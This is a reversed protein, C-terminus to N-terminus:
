NITAEEFAQSWIKESPTLEQELTTNSLDIQKVYTSKLHDMLDDNTSSDKFTSSYPTNELLMADVM